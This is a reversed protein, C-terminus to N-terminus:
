RGEEYKEGEGKREVRGKDKLTLSFFLSLHLILFLRSSGACFNLIQKETFNGL